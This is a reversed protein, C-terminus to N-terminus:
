LLGASLLDFASSGGEPKKAEILESTESWDSAGAENIASVRFEYCHNPLLNHATFQTEM